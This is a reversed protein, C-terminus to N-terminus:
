PQTGAHGLQFAPLTVESGPLHCDRGPATAAQAWASIFFVLALVAWSIRWKM